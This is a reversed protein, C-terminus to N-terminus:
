YLLEGAGDVHYTRLYVSAQHRAKSDRALNCVGRRSAIARGPAEFRLEGGPIPKFWFTKQPVAAWAGNPAALLDVQDIGGERVVFSFYHPVGDHAYNATMVVLRRGQSDTEDRVEDVTTNMAVDGGKGNFVMQICIPSGPQLVRALRDLPASSGADVPDQAPPTTVDPRRADVTTSTERPAPAPDAPRADPRRLDTTESTEAPARPQERPADARRLDQTVTAPGAPGAQGDYREQSV